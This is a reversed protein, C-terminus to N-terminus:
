ISGIKIKEKWSLYKSKHIDIINDEYGYLKHNVLRRKKGHFIPVVAHDELLIREARKFLDFEEHKSSTKSAQELLIDFEKNQYKCPNQGTLTSYFIELFTRPHPYDGIWGARAITFDGIKRMQLYIKWEVEKFTIDMKYGFVNKWMGAIAILNKKHAVDSNYLIEMKLPNHEGFGAEKYLDKAKNNRDNKIRESLNFNIKEPVYGDIGDPVIGYAPTEQGKLVANILKERDIAMSLAKRLKLNNGIEPKSMNFALFYFLLSSSERYAKILDPALSRVRDIPIDATMDLNQTKFLQFEQNKDEITYYYVVDMDVHNKDWYTTSKTLMIHSLPIRQTLKYAGNTIMKSPDTWDLDFKELLKKNLIVAARHALLDLFYNKPSNLTIVVINPTQAFVGLASIDEIEGTNIEAANKIAYFMFASSAGTSPDMLRRFSFVVDDARIPEGNSWQADRLFFRYEKGDDSIEWSKALAPLIEGKPGYSVLGEFLDHIIQSEYFGLVKHPDLSEPEVQNSRRLIQPGQVKSYEGLVLGDSILLFFLFIRIIM